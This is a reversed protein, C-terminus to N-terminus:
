GIEDSFHKNYLERLHDLLSVNHKGQPNREAACIIDYRPIM